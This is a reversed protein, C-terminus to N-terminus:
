FRYGISFNFKVLPEDNYSYNYGNYGYYYDNQDNYYTFGLGLELGIYLQKVPQINLSNNVLLGAKFVNRDESFGNYNTVVRNGFGFAGAVGVGYSIRRNSGTPYIKVGPYFYKFTRTEHRDNYSEDMFIFAVPLVLSVMSKRDLVREYQLGLGAAGENAMQIPSFTIINKGYKENSLGWSRRSRDRRDRRDRRDNDDNDMDADDLNEQTGNAYKIAEIKNKNIIFDPGDQNNWKRYTVTRPSVEKIKAPHHQRRPPYHPGACLCYNSHCCPNRCHYAKQIDHYLIISTHSLLRFTQLL